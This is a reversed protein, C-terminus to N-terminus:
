IVLLVIITVFGFHLTVKGRSFPVDPPTKLTTTKTTSSNLIKWIETIQKRNVIIDKRGDSIDERNGKIDKGNKEVKLRLKGIQQVLDLSQSDMKAMRTAVLSSQAVSYISGGVFLIALVGALTKVKHSTTQSGRNNPGEQYETAMPASPLQPYLSQYSPASQAEPAM